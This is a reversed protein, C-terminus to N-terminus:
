ESAGYEREVTLVNDITVRVLVGVRRVPWSPCDRERCQGFHVRPTVECCVTPSRFFDDEFRRQVAATIGKVTAWEEPSLGETEPDDAALSIFAFDQHVPSYDADVDCHQRVDRAQIKIYPALDAALPLLRDTVVAVAEVEPLLGLPNGDLLNRQALREKVSEDGWDACLQALQALRDTARRRAAAENEAKDAVRRREIERTAAVFKAARADVRARLEAPVEEYLRPMYPASPGPNEPTPEPLGLWEEFRAALEAVDQAHETAKTAAEAAEREARESAAVEYLTIADAADTPVRPWTVRLDELTVNGTRDIRPDLAIARAVLGVDDSQFERDRQAPRGALLEVKQAETTITGKITLM